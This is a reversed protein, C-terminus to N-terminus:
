FHVISPLPDRHMTLVVGSCQHNSVGFIMAPNRQACPQLPSEKKSGEAATDSLRLQDAGSPKLLTLQM